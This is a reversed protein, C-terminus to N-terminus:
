ARGHRAVEERLVMAEHPHALPRALLGLARCLGGHSQIGHVYLVACRTAPTRPLWMRGRLAYGDSMPWTHLEPPTLPRRM